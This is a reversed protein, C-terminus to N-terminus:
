NPWTLVPLDPEIDSYGTPISRKGQEIEELISYLTAWTNDRADVCYQGEVAFKPVTSTAYTCSSLIGDYNRTRAFDDLRKQTAQVVMAQLQEPTLPEPVPPVYSAVWESLMLEYDDLPTGYEEAKTRLDTIQTPHYSQCWVQTEHVKGPETRAPETETAPVEVDPFQVQDVWTGELWQSSSLILSKLIIM